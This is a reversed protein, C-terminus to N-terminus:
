SDAREASTEGGVGKEDKLRIQLRGIKIVEDDRKIRVKISGPAVVLFPTMELITQMSVQREATPNESPLSIVKEADFSVPARVSPKDDPDGPLYVLLEVTEAQKETKLELYTIAIALKPLQFPFAPVYMISRYVGMYSMKGGMEHRIDDCFLTYGYAM